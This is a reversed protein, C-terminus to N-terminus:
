AFFGDDSPDSGMAAWYSAMASDGQYLTVLQTSRDVDVWREASGGAWSTEQGLADAAGNLALLGGYAWGTQGDAQVQYWDDPTPGDLLAVREGQWLQGVVPAWTGPEARLNLQPAAVSAGVEARSGTPVGIAVAIAVAIAALRGVVGGARCRRGGGVRIGSGMREGRRLERPM